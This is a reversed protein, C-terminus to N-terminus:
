GDFRSDFGDSLELIAGPLVGEFLIKKEEQM